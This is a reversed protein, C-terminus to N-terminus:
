NAPAPVAMVPGKADKPQAPVAFGSLATFVLVMFAAVRSSYIMPSMFITAHIAYTWVVYALTSMAAHLGWPQGPSRQQWIYLPTLCLGVLFVLVSASHIHTDIRCDLTRVVICDAPSGAVASFLGDAATFFAIVEVPVYKTIREVYSDDGVASKTLAVPQQSQNLAHVSRPSVTFAPM